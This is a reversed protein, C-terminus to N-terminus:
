QPYFLFTFFTDSKRKLVWCSAIWFRSFCKFAKSSCLCIRISTSSLLHAILTCYETYLPIFYLFRHFIFKVDYITLIQFIHFKSCFLSLMSRPQGALQGAWGAPWGTKYHTKWLWWKIEEERREARPLFQNNLIWMEIM